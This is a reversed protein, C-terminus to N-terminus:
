SIALYHAFDKLQKKNEANPDGNMRAITSQLYCSVERILM